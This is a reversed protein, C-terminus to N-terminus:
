GQAPLSMAEAQRKGGSDRATPALDRGAPRLCTLLRECFSPPSFQSKAKCLAFLPAKGDLLTARARYDGGITGDSSSVAPASKKNRM